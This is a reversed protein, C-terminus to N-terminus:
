ALESGGDTAVCVGRGGVKGCRFIKFAELTMECGYFFCEEGGDGGGSRFSELDAEFFVGVAFEGGIAAAHAGHLDALHLLLKLLLLEENVVVQGAEAQEVHALLSDSVV